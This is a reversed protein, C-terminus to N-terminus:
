GTRMRYVIFGLIVLLITIVLAQLLWGPFFIGNRFLRKRRQRTKRHLRGNLEHMIAPLRSRDKVLALGEMADSMLDSDAMRAEVAHKEADNLRGELYDILQQPDLSPYQALIDAWKESM